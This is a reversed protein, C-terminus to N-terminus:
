LRALEPVAPAAAAKPTAARQSGPRCRGAEPGPSLRCSLRAWGLMWMLASVRVPDPWDPPTIGSLVRPLASLWVLAFALTLASGAILMGDRRAMAARGTIALIMSGMAGMTLAHLAASQALLDPRLLSMGLLLLGGPLWLWALHLMLLAPYSRALRSQWGALRAGQLIGALTLHFGQKAQRDALRWVRRGANDRGAGRRRYQPSGAAATRDPAARQLWPKPYLCAVARRGIWGILAAFLLVMAVPLAGMDVLGRMDALLVANGLAMVAIAAVVWLRGWLRAAILHRGLAMALLVFYGLAMVLQLGFPLSESLPLALRAALWLLALVLVTWSSVRGSMQGTAPRTWAPLATLLYGGVAAGCMGFVLEHLHWLRPDAPLKGPWLWVLPALLACIGAGLFLPRYSRGALLPHWLPHRQRPM